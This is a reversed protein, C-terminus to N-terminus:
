FSGGDLSNYLIATGNSQLVYGDTGIGLKRFGNTSNAILIDEQTYSALGTGGSNGLLANSLYLTNATLTVAVTSNATINTVSSNTTLGSSLLFTQLTGQTYSAAATNVTTTPAQTLGLFLKFIGNDSADRFLGAHEHPDVGADNYNGFFGIDLLDSTLNNSGLQILADSVSLTAVNVTLTSGTV